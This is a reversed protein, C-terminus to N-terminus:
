FTMGKIEKARKAYADRLDLKIKEDTVTERIEAAIKDLEEITKARGIREKIDSAAPDDRVAIVHDPDEGTELLFYQRLAIKGAYTMVKGAAKDGWDMSEGFVEVDEYEGSEAHTFRYVVRALIRSQGKDIRNGGNGDCARPMYENPNNLIESHVPAFLIGHKVMAPRLARIVDAESAYKYGGMEKAECSKQVYTVERMVEHKAKLLNTLRSPSDTM